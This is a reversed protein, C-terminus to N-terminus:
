KASSASDFQIPRGYFPALNLNKEHNKAGFGFPGTPNLGPKLGPFGAVPLSAGQFPALDLNFAVWFYLTHAADSRSLRHIWRPAL